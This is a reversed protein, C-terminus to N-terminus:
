RKAGGSSFAFLKGTLADGQIKIKNAILYMTPVIVLTLFTAFSLGFIVTWSMPGWFMANDGGLYIQPEFESLATEFNINIGLAMPLLGLITTIATLLVPRLRTKGGQIICEVIEDIPLNKDEDIGLARKRNSKLFDIYDILVIANNVVVGALSIVGIGTMLIVVNMKFTAIGGFVGITSFLVSGMIILPKIFSNFQSVLIIMIISIAILLARLLFDLTKKQEQQEGTMDITYGKPLAFRKLSETIKGVIENANYGELVNSSITVVRKQDKRNVADFSSSYSFSAVSSIPIQMVKGTTASRFTIKQNLLSSLNYRYKEKLRLQIPYEEENIKFDTVEKGFLATRITSAIQVTSMGFRRAKERDIHVLLEPKGTEIDIKLGEIGPIKEKNIHFILSDSIALLKFLNKGSVELNIPAGTPPGMLNKAVTIEMGPFRKHIEHNIQKLIDSTNIGKRDIYDVFNITLMAKNPTDGIASEGQGVVGQGVTTLISEVIDKYPELLKFVAEEVKKFKKNTVAVDTGVPLEAFINIFRPENVPFFDVKPKRIGLLVLTAILLVVTGFLFLFPRKGVLTFKIFNLYFNELKVLFTNMFWMSARYLAFVHLVILIAFITLLNAMTYAKGIYLPIAMLIFAGAWILMKKRKPAQKETDKNVFSFSLVPLLVLAVFLSSSLVIILTIPMFKMFEGMIDKWFLLPFFAALTTATSSIIPLAIEGVAQRAAVKIPYGKDVFRYINEVAVIANDVLMGLALILSFLVMMNITAGIFGLIVMSLLMSMPIALGVFIANRLGLFFFLVLVVFLMGIIMSNELNSLQSRVHTSQDNTITVILNEPIENGARAKDIERLVQDIAHLLNEGGKKVVQLSIVPQRNLRAYSKMEEYGVSIDAVDKLHVIRQKENKVIINRIEDLSQFEGITRISRRIDGMKIEGGSISLNESEIAKQIDYFSLQYTELKHLDVKIKVEKDTIGKIKVKSVEYITEIEDQLYEGYEKLEDLSFDGSLNITIVPFESVDIDEVVPDQNLDNPLEDLAKDVADKVEQVDEKIDTDPNFEIFILSFDQVSNSKLTKIGKVSKLEKELPRSILNEIDEPPNGPYLTRVLVTPFNVEPFLEKPLTKYSLAGFLVIIFIILFVTNRNKLSLTTLKFDRIIKEEM